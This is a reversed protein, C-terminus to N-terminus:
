AEGRLWNLASAEDDFFEVDLGAGIRKYQLKVLPPPSVVAFKTLGNRNGLLLSDRIADATARDQPVFEALNGIAAFRRKARLFPAAAKALDDLFARMDELQWFGAIAFYLERRQDDARISSTPALTAM